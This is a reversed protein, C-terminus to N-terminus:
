KTSAADLDWLEVFQKLTAPRSLNTTDIMRVKVYPALEESAEYMGRRVEALYDLGYGIVEHKRNRARIRQMLEDPQATFHIARMPKPSLQEYLAYTQYFTVYQDGSIWGLRQLAKSYALISILGQEILDGDRASHLHRLRMSLADIQFTFFLESKGEIFLQRIYRNLRSGSSHIIKSENHQGSEKRLNTFARLTTSKGAGPPGFVLSYEKEFYPQWNPLFFQSEERISADDKPSSVFVENELAPFLSLQSVKRELMQQAFQLCEELDPVLRYKKTTNFEIWVFESHENASLTIEPRENLYIAYLIYRFCMSENQIYFQELYEFQEFSFLMGTEEYVERVVAQGFSEGEEVKGTPLGWLNPFSKQPNRKLLLLENDSICVCSVADFLIKQKKPPSRLLM